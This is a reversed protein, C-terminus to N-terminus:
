TSYLHYIIHHSLFCTKCRDVVGSMRSLILRMLEFLPCCLMRRISGVLIFGILGRSAMGLFPNDPEFEGRSLPSDGHVGVRISEGAEYEVSMAWIGVELKVIEGPALFEDRDHPHFPYNEHISKEADIARRSARLIGLSGVHFM